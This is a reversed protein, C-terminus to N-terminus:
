VCRRTFLISVRMPKLITTLARACVCVLSFQRLSKLDVLKVRFADVDVAIQDSKWDCHVLKKRSPAIVFFNISAREDDVQREFFQLLELLSIALKLRASWDLSSRVALCVLFRFGFRFRFSVFRILISERKM